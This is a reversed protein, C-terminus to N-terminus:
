LQSCKFPISRWGQSLLFVLVSPWPGTGRTVACCPCARDLLPQACVFVQSTVLFNCWLQAGLAFTVWYGLDSFNWICGRRKESSILFILWSPTIEADTPELCVNRWVWCSFLLQWPFFLLLFNHKQKMFSGSSVQHLCFSKHFYCM